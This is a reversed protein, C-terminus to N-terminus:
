RARRFLRAFLGPEAMPRIPGYHHRRLGPDTYPRPNSWRDLATRNSM